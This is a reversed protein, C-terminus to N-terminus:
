APAKMVGLLTLIKAAFEPDKLKEAVHQDLERQITERDPADDSLILKVGVQITYDNAEGTM